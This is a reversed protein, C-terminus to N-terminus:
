LRDMERSLRARELYYPPLVSAPTIREDMGGVSAMPQRRAPPRGM